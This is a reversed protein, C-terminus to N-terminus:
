FQWWPQSVLCRMISFSGTESVDTSKCCRVCIESRYSKISCLCHKGFVPFEIARTSVFKSTSLKKSISLVKIPSYTEFLYKTESSTITFAIRRTEPPPPPTPKLPPPQYAHRCFYKNSSYPKKVAKHVNDLPSNCGNRVSKVSTTVWDKPVTRGGYLVPKESM